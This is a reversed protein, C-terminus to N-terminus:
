KKAETLTVIEVTDDAHEVGALRKVEELTPAEYRKTVLRGGDLMTVTIAYLKAATYTMGVPIDLFPGIWQPMVSNEGM